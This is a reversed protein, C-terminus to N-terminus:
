RNLAKGLAMELIMQIEIRTSVAGAETPESPHAKETDETDRRHIATANQLQVGRQIVQRDGIAKM